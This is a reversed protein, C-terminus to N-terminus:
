GGIRGYGDQSLYPPIMVCCEDSLGRVLLMACEEKM